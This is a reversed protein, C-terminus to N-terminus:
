RAREAYTVYSNYLAGAAANERGGSMDELSTKILLREAAISATSAVRHAETGRELEM